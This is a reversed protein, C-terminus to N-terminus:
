RQRHLWFGGILGILCGVVTDLLRTHGLATISATHAQGADALLITMPTIFMVATAYHRVVTLEIAFSLLVIWGAVQWDSLASSFLASVWVLGAATGVMRHLQKAWIERLTGGQIVALCSVPVWYPHSLGLAQAVLLALGVVGGITLADATTRRRDLTSPRAACPTPMSKRRMTLVYLVAVVMSCGCGLAVLGSKLAWQDPAVHGSAGISAAIVFFLSGPPGGLALNRCYLTALATLLALSPAQWATTNGGLLGLSYGLLMVGCSMLLSVIRQQPRGKDPLYLFVLGGLSATLGHVLHGLLAGALVPIGMSLASAVALWVPRQTNKIAM